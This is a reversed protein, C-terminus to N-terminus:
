PPHLMKGHANPVTFLPLEAVIVAVTLTFLLALPVNVFVAPTVEVVLSGFEAFLVALAVVVTFADASKRSVFLADGATTVAPALVSVYVSLIVFLPGDFAALTCTVSM